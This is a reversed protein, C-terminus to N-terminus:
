KWLQWHGCQSGAWATSFLPFFHCLQRWPCAHVTLAMDIINHLMIM